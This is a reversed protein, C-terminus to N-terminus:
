HIHHLLGVATVGAQRQTCGSHALVKPGTMQLVVRGVRLPGIAVAENERGPM